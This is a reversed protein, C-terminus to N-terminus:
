KGSSPDLKTATARDAAAKQVDGNQEHAIARHFYAQAFKPDLRIAETFDAIAEDFRRKQNRSLGRNHWAVALKADLKIADSFDAIAKDFDREEHFSLGRNNYAFALKPNLRIADTYDARAKEHRGQRHYVTGRNYHAMAYKADLRLAETFDAIAREARGQRQLALARNNWTVANKPDLRLAEDYDGVAREFDRKGFYADGRGHYGPPDLPRLQIVLNYDEIARDFERAERWAHGRALRVADNDPDLALAETFANVAAVLNGASLSHHGLRIWNALTKTKPETFEGLSLVKILDEFADVFVQRQVTGGEIKLSGVRKALDSSVQLAQLVREPKVGAEAAALPLDLEAEFRLALAAIPETASLPAGTRTVAEQFRQADKKLLEAFDSRPPYLAKITDLDAKGFADASKLVHDRVQDAKEIMGHHHCSMCSLGNEVARDPRRPDSVIATPGKDIREGSANVLFYAQLGNPLNFIIEGGDPRFAGTNDGPGLPHAFLNQRGTNSAFDYSKWYVVNGAVHREIVRNNKSVGSSNFGARAVREQRINERTDVRLLAELERETKPLQLVDHYLPPRSAAAVFWDGRVYPMKCGTMDCIAAFDEGPLRIGYPNVSVIAEWVKENWQYDRLDIRFVTRELDVSKPVVVKPGWSLSNVLKSLGHRYSQMEDESLGANHLHTLTFYRTFRRHREKVAQLDKEIAAVVDAPALFNRAAAVAVVDPAGADIWKKVLAIEEATPRPKEDPPPMPDDSSVLRRYLKSKDADGPVIKKRNVLRQRDLVFNFGGENAGDHGHCRHCNAKLIAQVQKGLLADEPEAAQTGPTLSLVVLYALTGRILPNM